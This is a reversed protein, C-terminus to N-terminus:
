PHSVNIWASGNWQWITGTIDLFSTSHWQVVASTTTPITMNKNVWSGGETRSWVQGNTKLATVTTTAATDSDIFAIVGAGSIGRDGKDGKDGKPGVTGTGTKIANIQTQMKDIAAWIATFPQGKAKGHEKDDSKANAVNLSVMILAFMSLIAIAKKM